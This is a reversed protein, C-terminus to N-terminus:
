LRKLAERIIIEISANPTEKLIAAIAKTINGKNFGLNLLATTAEETIKNNKPMMSLGQMESGSGKIVKDKLDLILRQATKIGIGKVSKIRNANESIIAERLEEDTLSSLIMRASGVGIGSVSILQMFIEREKKTAFGFFQEDDERIHHYLYIKAETQDKIVEYTQLSILISYGIGGCEIIAETPCLEVIEGKIYEYM